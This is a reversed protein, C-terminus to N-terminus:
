VKQFVDAKTIFITGRVSVIVVVVVVVVVM